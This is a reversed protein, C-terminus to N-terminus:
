AGIRLLGELRRVFTPFSVGFALCFARLEIVDVRREGRECKSVFSQSQGLRRALDQQTLGAALRTERLQSLFLKYGRSFASHKRGQLADGVTRIRHCRGMCAFPTVSAVM